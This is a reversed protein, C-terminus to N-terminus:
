GTSISFNAIGVVTKGSFSLDMPVSSCFDDVKRSGVELTDAHGTVTWNSQFAQGGQAQTGLKEVNVRPSVLERIGSDPKITFPGACPNGSELGASCLEGQSSFYGSANLKRPTPQRGDHYFGAKSYRYLM